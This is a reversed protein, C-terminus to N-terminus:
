KSTLSELRNFNQHIKTQYTQTVVSLVTNIVDWVLKYSDSVFLLVNKIALHKTSKNLYWKLTLNRATLLGKQYSFAVSSDRCQESNLVVFPQWVLQSHQDLFSSFISSHLSDLIITHIRSYTNLWLLCKPRDSIFRNYFYYSKSARMYTIFASTQSTSYQWLVFNNKGNVLSWKGPM